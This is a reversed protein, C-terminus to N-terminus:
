RRFRSAANNEENWQQLNVACDNFISGLIRILCVGGSQFPDFCSRM